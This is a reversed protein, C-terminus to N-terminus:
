GNKLFLLEKISEKFGKKPSWGLADRLAGCDAVTDPIENPRKEDLTKWKIRSGGAEIVAEVIERVSMSEGSGVNYVCFRENSSVALACAEIFDDVHLYDRKPTDDKVVIERGERAQKILMPILFSEGQGPGYLNFPRLVMAKVGMHESYFRCVEEGLWKSHAYPNNPKVPHAEDIPLYEPIGYVYGSVYIMRCSNERCFELAQQTGLANVSYFKDPEKWSEPIFTLGALHVVTDVGKGKLREYSARERIDLGKELELATHGLSLLRPLLRRGIFGTSGTVLIKKPLATM